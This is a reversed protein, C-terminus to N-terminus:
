KGKSLKRFYEAVADTYGAPVRDSAGSRVQGTEAEGVQRRLQVELAELKPLIERGIRADLEPSATQGVQLRSLERSLDQIERGLDPNDRYQERLDNLQMQADRVIAGPDAYQIDPVEFIGEQQFRGFGGFGGYRGRNGGSNRGTQSGGGAQNGGQQNGGQQGGQGNQGNQGAQAMQQMQSRLRELRALSQEAEKNGGQGGNANLASQAAKLDKSMQDLAQTIPGERDVMLQGQGDRIWRASYQMRMKTENQQIDSLGDRVRASAGPQTGALDRAAKQMDKEIQDLEAAMKEKEDALKRAEPTAQASGNRGPQQGNQGNQGRGFAQGLRNAFDRQQDALRDARQSLDDLQSTSQQQRLGNMM